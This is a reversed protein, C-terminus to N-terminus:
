RGGFRQLLKMMAADKRERAISTATSGGPGPRNPNAGAQLLAGASETDGREAALM